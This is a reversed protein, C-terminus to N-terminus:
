THATQMHTAYTSNQHGFMEHMSDLHDVDKAVTFYRAMVWETSLYISNTISM